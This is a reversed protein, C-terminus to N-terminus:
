EVIVRTGNKEGEKLLQAKSGGKGTIFVTRRARKVIELNIDPHSAYSIILDANLIEEPIDVEELIEPLEEPLHHTVVDYKKSIEQASQKGHYGRQIIAVKM